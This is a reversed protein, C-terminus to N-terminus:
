CSKNIRKNIKKIHNTLSINPEALEIISDLIKYDRLRGSAVKYVKSKSCGHKTALTNAYGHPLFKRLEGIETTKTNM